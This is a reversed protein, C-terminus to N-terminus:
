NQSQHQKQRAVAISYANTNRKDDTTQIDNTM